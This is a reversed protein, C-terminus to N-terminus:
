PEGSLSESLESGTKWKSGESEGIEVVGPVEPRRWGLAGSGGRVINLWARSAM